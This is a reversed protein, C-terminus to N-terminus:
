ATLKSRIKPLHENIEEFDHAASKRTEKNFGERKKAFGLASHILITRGFYCHKPAKPLGNGNHFKLKLSIPGLKKLEDEHSSFFEYQTYCEPYKTSYLRMIEWGMRMMEKISSVVSEEKNSLIAKEVTTAQLSLQDLLDIKKCYSIKTQTFFAFLLFVSIKKFM